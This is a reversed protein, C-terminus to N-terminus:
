SKTTDILELEVGYFPAFEQIDPSHAAGQLLIALPVDEQRMREIARIIIVHGRLRKFYHIPAYLSQVTPHQDPLTRFTGFRWCRLAHEARLLWEEGAYVRIERSCVARAVAHWDRAIYARVQELTILQRGQRRSEALLLQEFVGPTIESDSENEEIFVGCAHKGRRRIIKWAHENCARIAARSEDTTSHTVTDEHPIGVFVLNTRHERSYAAADLRRRALEEFYTRVCLNAQPYSAKELLPRVGDVYQIFWDVEECNENEM